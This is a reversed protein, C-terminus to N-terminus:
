SIKPLDKEEVHEIFETMIALEIEETAPISQLADGKYIKAVCPEDRRM